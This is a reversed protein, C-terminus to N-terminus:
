SGLRNPRARVPAERVQTAPIMELVIRGWSSSCAREAVAPGSAAHAKIVRASCARVRAYMRRSRAYSLREVADPSTMVATVRRQTGGDGRAYLAGPNNCAAASGGDRGTPYPSAARAANGPAGVGKELAEALKM